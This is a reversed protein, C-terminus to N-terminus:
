LGIKKKIELLRKIHETNSPEFLSTNEVQKEDPKWEYYALRYTKDRGFKDDFTRYGLIKKENLTMKDGQFVVHTFGKKEPVGVLHSASVGIVEGSYLTKAGYVKM